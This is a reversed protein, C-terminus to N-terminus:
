PTVTGDVIRRAREPHYILGGCDRRGRYHRYDVTNEEWSKTQTGGYFAFLGVNGGFVWLENAPFYSAGVDDTYNRLQVVNAGRYVGLRGARRIEATGEPDFLAAADTVVDSISDIMAARGLVTVPPITAGDPLTVDRVERIAQDLAAKTLGTTANVYYPSTSPVAAQLMQFMRRNIEADLKSEALGVLEEITEAFNARLKDAFESVHFGITDRPLEFRETKLQSEEIYGGRATWFVKLGRRERVEITEFEGVTRTEFYTGFLNDFAFGYDLREAVIAAVERHWSENGWNAQAEDNLAKKSALYADIEERRPRGFPDLAARARIMDNVTSTM